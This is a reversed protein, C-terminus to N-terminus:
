PCVLQFYYSPSGVFFCAFRLPLRTKTQYYERGSDLEHSFGFDCVKCSTGNVLVNRRFGTLFILQYDFVYAALDRHICRNDSLYVMASNIEVAFKLLQQIPFDKVRIVGDLAGDPMYELVLVLPDTATIVGLLKLINPHSLTAMLM